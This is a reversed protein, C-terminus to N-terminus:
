ALNAGSQTPCSVEPLIPERLEYVTRSLSRVMSLLYRQGVVLTTDFQQLLNASQNGPKYPIVGKDYAYAAISLLGESTTNKRRWVFRDSDQHHPNLKGCRSAGWLKNWSSMCGPYPETPCACSYNATNADFRVVVSRTCSPSSSNCEVFGDISPTAYHAGQAVRRCSWDDDTPTTPTTPPPASRALLLLLLAPRPMAAAEGPQQRVSGIASSGEWALSCYPDPCSQAM